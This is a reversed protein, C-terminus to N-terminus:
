AAPRLSKEFHFRRISGGVTKNTAQTAVEERVLRYGASKYLAFAAPQLESTSLILRTMGLARAEMEARELLYRGIGHRRLQPDVYMRRLEAVDEDAREIGFMGVLEGDLEAVFFRGNRSEYYAEVRGIEERLANAIYDEFQAEWNAPTLQRNVRIFLARVAATDTHVFPRIAPRGTGTANSADKCADTM